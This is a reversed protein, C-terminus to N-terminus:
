EEGFFRARMLDARSVIGVLCGKEDVVPVRNIGMRDFLGMIEFATAEATVTVAPSSMIDAAKKTRISTAVCGKGKLCAAIIGMVHEADKAGMRSLFDKESIVGAVRGEGDVVPVGSIHREAMVDAVQQASSDLGVSHVPRTMIDRARVASSIRKVALSYAARFVEKLDNPTIDLYGQMQKMADYVDDDSVDIG